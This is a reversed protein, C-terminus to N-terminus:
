DTFLHRYKHFFRALTLYALIMGVSATLVMIRAATEDGLFAKNGIAGVMAFMFFIGKLKSLKDASIVKGQSAAIARMTDMAYERFLMLLGLYFFPPRLKYGIILFTSIIVIKDAMIDLFVGAKSVLNLRRALAGDLVDMFVSILILCFASTWFEVFISVFAMAAILLRGVTVANPLNRMAM